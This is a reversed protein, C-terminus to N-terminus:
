SMITKMWNKWQSDRQSNALQHKVHDNERELEQIRTEQWLARMKAEEKTKEVEAELTSRRQWLKVRTLEESHRVEIQALHRDHHENVAAIEKAHTTELDEIHKEHELREKDLASSLSLVEREQARLDKILATLSSRAAAAHPHKDIYTPPYQSPPFARSVISQSRSQKTKDNGNCM